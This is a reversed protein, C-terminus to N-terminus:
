PGPLAALLGDVAALLSDRRAQDLGKALNRVRDSLSHAAATAAALDGQEVDTRVTAALQALDNADRGTLGDKGGRAAEIASDVRDLAGLAFPSSSPLATSPLTTSPLTTSPLAIGSPGLTPAPSSATGGLLRPVSLVVLIAVVAVVLAMAGVPVARSRAAVRPAPFAPEAPQPVRPGVSRAAVELAAAVVTPAEMDIGSASLGRRNPGGLARPNPSAVGEIDLGRAFEDALESATPRRDPDPDLAQALPADFATGLDPAAASVTLPVLSASAGTAGAASSPKPDQGALAQFITVGLAYVDSAASPPHGVLIEPALYPLTGLTAGPLTLPPEDSSGESRAIGFDALKPRNNSFLINAPKIDRHIIGRRHLEALADSIAVVLPVLAAPLIRGSARLRDALSGGACLEMVYFPERGTTPDGPEVDYVAAVNPHSFSAMARAERDFRAAFQADASLNAVLVKVAVQRDLRLDTARYVTAMGGAGLVSDIRYRDALVDGVIPM